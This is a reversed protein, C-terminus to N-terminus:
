GIKLIYKINLFKVNNIERIIKKINEPIHISMFIRLRYKVSIPNNLINYYESSIKNDIFSMFKKYSELKISNLEEEYRIFARDQIKHRKEILIERLLQSLPIDVHVESYLTETTHIGMIGCITGKEVDISIVTNRELFALSACGASGLIVDSKRFFSKPPPLATKLYFFHINDPKTQLFLEEIDNRREKNYGLIIFNFIKDTHLKAFQLVEKVVNLPLKVDRGFYSINYDSLPLNDLDPHEFDEPFVNMFAVASIGCSESNELSRYGRFMKKLSDKHISALEKRELKFNFFPFFEGVTLHEGLLYIVHKAQLREAIIEGWMALTNDSSEIVIKDFGSVEVAKIKKLILEHVSEIKWKSFYVPPYKLDSIINNKFQELESLLVDGLVSSFVIVKWGQSKLFHTKGATYIQGGGVHVVSSTFFIYLKEKM